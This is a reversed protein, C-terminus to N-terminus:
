SHKEHAGMDVIPVPDDGGWDARRVAGDVDIPLLETTDGDGDVDLTDSPLLTNGGADIAPSSIGLRLDGSALDVFRPDANLVSTCSAGSPCGGRIISNKIVTAATGALIEDPSDGWAIVNSLLLSGASAQMRIAGGASLAINDAFTAGVLTINSTGNGVMIAGGLGAGNNWFEANSCSLDANTIFIAGGVDGTTNNRFVVNTCQLRAIGGTPISSSVRLAGAGGGSNAASNSNEEFRVRVLVPSVTGTNTADVSLAGGQVTNLHNATFTVDEFLPAATGQDNASVYAGGFFGSNSTFVVHRITASCESGVGDASCQFGADGSADAHQVTFGDVVTSRTIKAGDREQALLVWRADPTTAGDQQIDGDLVTVHANWDRQDRAYENGAFGGYLGVGNVLEFPLFRDNDNFGSEDDDPYYTGAAVWVEHVGRCGGAGGIGLRICNLADRLYRFATAWSHGDGGAPANGDVVIVNSPIGVVGTTCPAGADVLTALPANPDTGATRVRCIRRTGHGPILTTSSGLLTVSSAGSLANAGDVVSTTGQEELSETVRPASDDVALFMISISYPDEAADTQLPVKFAFTVVGDYEDAAPDAPLTRGDSAAANRVVFGYPFVTTIDPHGSLDIAGVEDETLVQLVDAGDPEIAGTAVGRKVAGTPLLTTPSVAAAAAGDFRDLRSIATQALTPAGGGTAVALFTLNQRPTDYPTGDAQANRVRYTARIYRVGGAGREGDTFSGTSIPELQITGDGSADINAPSALSALVLGTTGAIDPGGAHGAHAIRLKALTAVDPASLASTHVQGTGLGTITIEVVGLPTAAAPAGTSTDAPPQLAPRTLVDEACASTLIALLGVAALPAVLPRAARHRICPHLRM